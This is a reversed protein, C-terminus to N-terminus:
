LFEKILRMIQFYKYEKVKWIDMKLNDQIIVEMLGDIHGKAMKKAMKLNDKINVAMQIFKNEM